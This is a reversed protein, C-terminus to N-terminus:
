HNCSQHRLYAVKYDLLDTGRRYNYYMTMDITLYVPWQTTSDTLEEVSYYTTKVFSQSAIIVGVETM